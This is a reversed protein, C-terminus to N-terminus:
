AAELPRAALGARESHLREVLERIEANSKGSIVAANLQMVEGAPWGVMRESLKVPKTYLGNAIDAYHASRGKGRIVLVRGLRLITVLDMQQIEM